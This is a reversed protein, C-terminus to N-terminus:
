DVQVAMSCRPCEIWKIIDVCDSVDVAKRSKVEYNAYQLIAACNSCTVRKFQKEDEGVVKVM